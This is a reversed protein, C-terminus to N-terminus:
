SGVRLVRGLSRRGRSLHKRATSEACGLIVAIEEVPRDEIYFLAIAQAQRKPLARVKAWFEETEAPIKDDVHADAPMRELARREAYRRRWGSHARNSAVRRVWGSPNDLDGWSRYAALFADHAVDEAWMDDGTVARAITLVAHYENEYFSQFSGDEM